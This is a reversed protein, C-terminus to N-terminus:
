GGAYICYYRRLVYMTADIKRVTESSWTFDYCLGVDTLDIPYLLIPQFGLIDQRRVISDHIAHYTYVPISIDKRWNNLPM